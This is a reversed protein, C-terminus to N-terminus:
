LASGLYLVDAALIVGALGLLVKSSTSLHGESWQRGARAFAIVCIFCGLLFSPILAVVGYWLVDGGIPSGRARWWGYIAAEVLWPLGAGLLSWWAVANTKM